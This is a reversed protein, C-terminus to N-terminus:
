AARGFPCWKSFDVAFPCSAPPYAPPGDGAPRYLHIHHSAGHVKIQVRDVEAPYDSPFTVPHCGQKEDGKPIRGARAILKFSKGAPAGSGDPPAGAEIWRRVRAIKAAPLPAGYLPMRAGEGDRLHGELKALLFSRDPDGPAVRLLGAGQAVENAPPAGVLNAYTSGPALTLGGAGAGHCSPASACGARTFMREITGVSAVAAAAHPVAWGLLLLALLTTKRTM